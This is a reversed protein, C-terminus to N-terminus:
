VKMAAPIRRFLLYIADLMRKQLAFRMKRMVNRAGPNLKRGGTRITGSLGVASLIDKSSLQSSIDDATVLAELATSKEAM